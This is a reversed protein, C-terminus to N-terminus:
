AGREVVPPPTGPLHQTDSWTWAHRIVLLLLATEAISGLLYYSWEGVAGGLITIAYLAAIAINVIRNVRRHMVVMSM